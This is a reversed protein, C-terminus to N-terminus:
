SKRKDWIPTRIYTELGSSNSNEQIPKGYIAVENTIKQLKRKIQEPSGTICIIVQSDQPNSHYNPIDVNMASKFEPEKVEDLSKDMKVAKKVEVKKGVKKPEAHKEDWEKFFKFSDNATVKGEALLKKFEAEAQAIDKVM